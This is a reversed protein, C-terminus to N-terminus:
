KNKKSIQKASGKDETGYSSILELLGADDDEFEYGFDGSSLDQKEPKKDATTTTSAKSEPATTTTSERQADYSTGFRARFGALRGAEDEEINLM